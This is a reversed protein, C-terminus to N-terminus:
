INHLEKKAKEYVISAEIATEFRGLWVAKGDKMIRAGYKKKLNYPTNSLYVGRYKVKSDKHSKSNWANQMQSCVRLNQKRNDLKDGNIHDIVLGTEPRMIDRHMYHSINNKDKRSAYGHNTCHWTFVSLWEYDEKDVLAFRGRTLQIQKM